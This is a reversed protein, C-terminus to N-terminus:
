LLPFCFSIDSVFFCFCYPFPSGLRFVLRCPPLEWRASRRGDQDQQNWTYISCAYMYIDMTYVTYHISYTTNDRNVLSQSRDLTEKWNTVDSTKCWSSLVKPLSTYMLLHHSHLTWARGFFCFFFFFLHPWTDSEEKGRWEKGSEVHWCCCCCCWVRKKREREKAAERNEFSIQQGKKNESKKSRKNVQVTARSGSIFNLLCKKKRNKQSSKIASPQREWFLFVFSVLIVLLFSPWDTKHENAFDTGKTQNAWGRASGIVGTLLVCRRIIRRLVEGAGFCRNSWVSLPRNFIM